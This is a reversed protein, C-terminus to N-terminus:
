RKRAPRSMSAKLREAEHKGCRECFFQAAGLFTFGGGEYAIMRSENQEHPTEVGCRVCRAKV